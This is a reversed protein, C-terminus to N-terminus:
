RAAMSPNAVSRLKFRATVDTNARLRGGADAIRAVVPILGTKADASPGVFVVRAPWASRNANREIIEAGRTADLRDVQEATLECRVDIESLDVIEGWATMGPRTVTGLSVDLWSVIGDIPAHIAYHEFEAECAELEATAAALRSEQEAIEQDIPLKLLYDLHAQAAKVEADAKLAATHAEMHQRTSVADQQHLSHIRDLVEHAHKATIQTAELTARAEAREETRPLAKLRALGAKLEAVTARKARVEAEPEDADLEILKQGIAVRDGPAIAINIVPHQVMTAISAVRHPCPRTKGVVEFIAESSSTSLAGSSNSSPPIRPPAEGASAESALSWNEVRQCGVLLWPVWLLSSAIFRSM